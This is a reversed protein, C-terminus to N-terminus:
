GEYVSEAEVAFRQFWPQIRRLQAESVLTRITLPCRLLSSLAALYGLYRRCSPWQM